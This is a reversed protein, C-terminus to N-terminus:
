SCTSCGGSGCTHSSASETSNSEAKETSKVEEPKTTSPQSGGKFDTEYWGSGTFKVKPATLQKSFTSKKCEPCETLVPDSFKQLYDKQFGCESCRYVYIPM